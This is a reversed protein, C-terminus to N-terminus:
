RTELRLWCYFAGRGNSELYVSHGRVTWYHKWLIADGRSLLGAYKM